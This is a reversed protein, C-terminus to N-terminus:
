AFRRLLGPLGLLGFLMLASTPAIPVATIEIDAYVLRHDSIPFPFTGVLDFLPDSEEPWFVGADNTKLGNVSPLVYDVRLNGPGFPTEGFDTTDFAPDGLHSDNDSGQNLAQEVGGLSDPTVGTYIWPNDLFQLIADNSSDGDFPDANYDGVIVFREGPNLGGFEGKDDYIYDGEGPTIYDAFLRIEDHNRLGNRDEPGDFVPPTPHAALIHVTEGGVNVPLDWHSKSSLRQVSLEQDTYWSATNGNGDVDNPDAPLLAGPMDRWLFNQFTRVSTTDIEHKSYVVMGFQGEFNGFGQADNPGGVSGDNNMDFGTAIGTNSPASYRYAYDIPAAGNQSISLYNSQFLEAAQGGADYDFENILIIDPNSLQIIEAVAQAQSNGGTSLDNILQGANDRNLSANFTAVRIETANATHALLLGISAAVALPYKGDM